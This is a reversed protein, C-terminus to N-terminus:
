PRAASFVACDAATGDDFIGNNDPGGTLNNSVIKPAYSGVTEHFVVLELVRAFEPIQEALKVAMTRAETVRGQRLRLMIRLRDGASKFAPSSLGSLQNLLVDVNAGDQYTFRWNALYYVAKNELRTGAANAVVKELRPELKMEYAHREAPSLGAARQLDQEIATLQGEIEDTKTRDEGPRNMSEKLTPNRNSDLCGSLFCGVLLTCLLSLTRLSM